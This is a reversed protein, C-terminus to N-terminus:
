IETIITKFSESQNIEIGINNALTVDGIWTIIKSKADNTQIIKFIEPFISSLFVMLHTSSYPSFTSQCGIEKQIFVNRKSEYESHKIVSYKFKYIEEYLDKINIPDNPSIYVCQGGLLFPEVWIMFLPKKIDGNLLKDCLTHEINMNGTCLFIYDQSNLINTEDNAIKYISDKVTTVKQEPFKDKLYKRVVDTKYFNISTFGLLHRGINESGFGDKDVLTFEPFNINNLLNVLNSGISGIGAILFKYKPIQINDTSTRNILRDPNLKEIIFKKIIRKHFPLNKDFTNKFDNMKNSRFGSLKSPVINYSWGAMIKEGYIEKCFLVTKESNKSNYYTRFEEKQEIFNLSDLYSYEFPPITFESVEGIFFLEKEIFSIRNHILTEKYDNIINESDNYILYYNIKDDTTYKISKVIGETPMSQFVSFYINKKLFTNESEWYAFFEDEFENLNQKKLGDIIIKKAKLVSEILINEPRSYDTIVASDFTCIEYDKISIHPIIGIKKIYSPSIYIKPVVNPFEDTIGIFLSLEEILWKSNEDDYLGTKVEWIHTHIKKKKLFDTDSFSPVAILSDEDFNKLELNCKSLLEDFNLVKRM